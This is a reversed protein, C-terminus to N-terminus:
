GRYALIGLSAAMSVARYIKRGGASIVWNKPDDDPEAECGFPFFVVDDVEPLLPRLEEVECKGALSLFKKQSLLPLVLTEDVLSTCWFEEDDDVVHKPPIRQGLDRNRWPRDVDEALWSSEVSTERIAFAFGKM